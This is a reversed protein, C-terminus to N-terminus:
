KVDVRKCGFEVDVVATKGAAGKIASCTAPCLNVRTPKMPDDYYWAKKGASVNACAALTAVYGMYQATATASDRYVVNVNNFDIQTSSTPVPFDCAAAQRRVTDLADRFKAETGTGVTDVLFAAGTDGAVAIGNLSTLLSGVGIVFTKVKPETQAANQVLNVVDSLTNPAGGDDPAVCGEPYGDTAM